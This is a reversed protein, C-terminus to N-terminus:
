WVDACYNAFECELCRGRVPTPEPCLQTEGVDRIGMLAASVAQRLEGTFEIPFVRNDPIRYVFGRRAPRGYASEALLCYGALQMRHNQGPEGSTLKFDVVAVEEPAELVLDLKGSLGLGEDRLWVNFRRVAGALGYKELSRRMELSEIMEQAAIAEKMKYTPKGVAPMARHYYVIRPCYAWQKLDTVPIMDM